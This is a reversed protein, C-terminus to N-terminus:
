DAYIMEGIGAPRKLVAQREYKKIMGYSFTLSLRCIKKVKGM